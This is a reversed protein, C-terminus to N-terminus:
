YVLTAAKNYAAVYEDNTYTEAKGQEKLLQMATLHQKAQETDVPDDGTRLTKVYQSVDPDEAFREPDGAVGKPKGAFMEPKRTAVLRQLGHVDSAFLESLTEKEAPFVRGTDVAKALIVEIDRARDKQELEEVRQAFEEAEQGKSDSTTRLEAVTQELAAIKEDKERFSAALRHKPDVTEDLGLMKMYDTVKPDEQDNQSV